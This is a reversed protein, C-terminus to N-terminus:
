LLVGPRVALGKLGSSPSVNSNTHGSFPKRKRASFTLQQALSAKHGGCSCAATQDEEDGTTAAVCNDALCTSSSSHRGAAPGGMRRTGPGWDVMGGAERMLHHVVGRDNRRHRLPPPPPVLAIGVDLGLEPPAADLQSWLTLRNHAKYQTWPLCQPRCTRQVAHQESMAEARQRTAHFQAVLRRTQVLERM